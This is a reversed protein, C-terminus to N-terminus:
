RLGRYITELPEEPKAVAIQIASEGGLTKFAQVSRSFQTRVEAIGVQKGMPDKANVIWVPRPALAAVLDPLDYAKLVGPIVSEFVDRHMRHTVVSEYSLLMGELAVKKVREDVVAEHLLLLAGAGVGFGYIKESNVEPRLALLDIGRPACGRPQGTGLRPVGVGM